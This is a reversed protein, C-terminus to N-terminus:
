RGISLAPDFKGAVTPSQANQTERRVKESLYPILEGLTVQGDKNYDAEGKLGKLLFYTFVGHGDGWQQGEQSFQKDDSASIVAIGDALQSLNQLGSGIPNIEIGRSGRRAVDFSRGVGGSHCADAVVVVKRARIFRKLATEIDWMPFGTTAIDAYDVDYPLLFLNNLSDPSEPSGHGAFYITVMDEELAQKLWNFLAGRINQATAQSDTLLRVRVPAYGGGERSVLWDYFARADAAAYRLGAIRSDKYRSIGVVVAWKAALPAPPPSQRVAPPAAPDVKKASAGIGATWKPSNSYLDQKLQDVCEAFAAVLHPFGLQQSQNWHVAVYKPFRFAERAPSTWLVNHQADLLQVSLKVRADNYGGSTALSGDAYEFSHIKGELYLTGAGAAAKTNGDYVSAAFLKAAAIDRAIMKPIEESLSGQFWDDGSKTGGVPSRSARESMPREDNFRKVIVSYPLPQNVHYGHPLPYTIDKREFTACGGILLLLLFILPGIKKVNIARGKSKSM